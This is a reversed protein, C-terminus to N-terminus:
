AREWLPARRRVLLLEMLLAMRIATTREMGSDLNQEMPGAKRTGSRTEKPLGTPLATPNAKPNEMQPEREHVLLSSAKLMGM